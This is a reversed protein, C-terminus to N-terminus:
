RAFEHAALDRAMDDLIATLAGEMAAATAHMGTEPVPRRMRYRQTWLAARSTTAYLTAELELDIEAQNSASDRLQEFRQLRASLRYRADSRDTGDLVRDAFGAERFYGLLARQVLAPPQDVWFEYHYRKLELPKKIESYLIARGSRLPDASVRDIMLGGSLVPTARSAAAGAVDLQYFRDEPVPATTGCGALLLLVGFLYLKRDSVGCGRIM